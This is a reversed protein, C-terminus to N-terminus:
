ASDSGSECLRFGDGSSQNDPICEVEFEWVDSTPLSISNDLAIYSQQVDDFQTFYRGGTATDFWSYRCDLYSM